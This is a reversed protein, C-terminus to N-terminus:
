PRKPLLLFLWLTLLYSFGREVGHCRASWETDKRALKGAGDVSDVCSVV